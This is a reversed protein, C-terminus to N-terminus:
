DLSTLVYDIRTEYLFTKDLRVTRTDTKTEFNWEVRCMRREINKLNPYEHWQLIAHTMNQKKDHWIAFRHPLSRPMAAKRGECFEPKNAERAGM